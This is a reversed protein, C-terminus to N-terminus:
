KNTMNKFHQQRIWDEYKPCKYLVYLNGCIAIILLCMVLIGFLGLDFCLFAVFLIFLIRGIKTYMFGFNQAIWRSIGAFAIEYCCIVIGFFFVYIAIFLDGLSSATLNLLAVLIMLAACIAFAGRLYLSYKRMEKLEEPTIDLQLDNDQEFHSKEGVRLNSEIDEDKDDSPSLSYQGINENVTQKVIQKTINKTIPNSIIESTVEESM